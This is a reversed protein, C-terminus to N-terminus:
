KRLKKLIAINAPDDKPDDKPTELIWDLKGAVKHSALAKFAELGINGQGLNQHRDLHGGLTGKSDNCHILDLYKFGIVKDFQKLTEDVGKKTTIDYGSAFAHCTDFCVGIDFKKLRVDFLIAAIEEFTDGVIRGAGASMELLLKTSGKYGEMTKAIAKVVRETGEEDTQEGFSGIHTMIAKCGLQSGRDLEGRLMSISGYYTTNKASALNIIYPTHIYFTDFKYKKLEARFKEAAEDTIASVPGGYPSRSFIQFCEAAVKAANAPANWIGKAISVHTGIRM